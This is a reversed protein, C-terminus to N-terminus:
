CHREQRGLGARLFIASILLDVDTTVRGVYSLVACLTEGLISFAAYHVRTQRVTCIYRSHDEVRSARVANM